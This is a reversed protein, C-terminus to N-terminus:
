DEICDDEYDDLDRTVAKSAVLLGSYNLAAMCIGFEDPLVLNRHFMKNAFDVDITTQQFENRLAVTGVM